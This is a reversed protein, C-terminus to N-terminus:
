SHLAGRSRKIIIERQADAHEMDKRLAEFDSSDVLSEYGNTQQVYLGM